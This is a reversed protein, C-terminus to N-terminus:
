RPAMRLAGDLRIVEGNLYRNSIIHMVLSAFENPEGLRVPFPVQQGLSQQAAEPLAKLMPTAFIGPAVALVRIGFQAFERAAPMTLAAIGGKSSAYAAQGIQGEFAAVSAVSVIVGRENDAMPDLKSAEAGVLRLMNFSGILNVRIVREYDALPMPGDRGVIRKAPGVGACNILIRAPGNKETAEKLAAVASDADSVDCKIAHGGIEKAVKQAADMNVDLVAVKAGASALQAATAAGLGSGGGTVVAAQGKPDM